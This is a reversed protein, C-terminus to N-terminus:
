ETRTDVRRHEGRFAAQLEAIRVEEADADFVARSDDLVVPPM